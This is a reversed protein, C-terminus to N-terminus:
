VVTPTATGPAPMATAAGGDNMPVSTKDSGQAGQQAPDTAPDGTSVQKNANMAVISPLSDLVAEDLEIGDDMEELMLKLWWTPNLGPTQLIYPALREINAIRLARNPRGSSGAQVQVSIEDAMQQRNLEPWAAGPGAIKKAWEPSLQDFLVIAGARAVDTLFEDLDDINSQISSMRSSEAISSETATAGSAGGLNAEQDGLTRLIDGFITETEYTAPDIPLTPKPQLKTRIDVDSSPPIADLEILEHVDHSAFKMKDSESLLGKAAVWAPRNGIRHERVSERSRNIEIQMPRLLTVDSPPFPDTDDEIDNFTLSFFPHGQEYFVDPAAPSELFEKFGDCITMKQGSRLDYIEWVCAMDGREAYATPANNGTVTRHKNFSAGLDVGYLEEVREPTFHFEQAIWGAGVFGRLQVVCPDVIVSTSRPFDFVLGESVVVTEQSNLTNMGTRLEEFAAEDSQIEGESFEHALRNLHTLQESMDPIRTEAMPKAQTARQFGVKIYGVGCTRVRRILQKAQVKFRPVSENMFYDLLIELTKSVRGALQKRTRAEQVDNLLEMDAPMPMGQAMRNMADMLSQQNGDWVSFSLQKRPKAVFRPNKAYIAATRSAIQRQVINAVYQDDSSDGWQNGRAFKMDERMQTFKPEWYKKAKLVKDQWQKVMAARAPDPNCEDGDTIRGDPNKENLTAEVAALLQENGEM